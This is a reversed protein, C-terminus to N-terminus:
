KITKNEKNNYDIEDCVLKESTLILYSFGIFGVGVLDWIEDLVDPPFFSLM